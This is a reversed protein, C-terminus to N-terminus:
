IIFSESAFRGSEDQQPVATIMRQSVSLGMVVAAGVPSKVVMDAFDTNLSASNNLGEPVEAASNGVDVRSQARSRTRCCRSWKLFCLVAIILVCTMAVKGGPDTLAELVVSMVINHLSGLLDTGQALYADAGIAAAIPQVQLRVNVAINTLADITVNQSAQWVLQINEITASAKLAATKVELHSSMAGVIEKVSSHGVNLQLGTANLYMLCMFCLLCGACLLRALRVIFRRVARQRMLWLTVFLIWCAAVLRKPRIYMHTCIEFAASMATSSTSEFAVMVDGRTTNETVNSV